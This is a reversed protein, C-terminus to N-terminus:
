DKVCVRSKVTSSDAIIVPLISNFSFASVHNQSEKLMSSSKWRAWRTDHHAAQNILMTRLWNQNRGGAEGKGPDRGAQATHTPHPTRPPPGMVILALLGSKCSLPLLWDLTRPSDRYANQIDVQPFCSPHLEHGSLQDPTTRLSWM